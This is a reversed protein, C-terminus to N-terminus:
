NKEDSPFKKLIPVLFCKINHFILLWFTKFVTFSCLGIFVILFSKCNDILSLRSTIINLFNSDNIYLNLKGLILITWSIKDHM